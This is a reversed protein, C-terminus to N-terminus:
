SSVRDQRCRQGRSRERDAEIERRSPKLAAKDVHGVVAILQSLREIQTPAPHDEPIREVLVSRQVTVQVGYSEERQATTQERHLIEDTAPICQNRDRQVRHRPVPEGGRKRGETPNNPQGERRKILVAHHERRVHVRQQKL